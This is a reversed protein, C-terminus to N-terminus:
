AKRWSLRWCSRSSPTRSPWTCNNQAGYKTCRSVTELASWELTINWACLLSSPQTAPMDCEALILVANFSVFTAFLSIHFCFISMSQTQPFCSHYIANRAYRMKCRIFVQVNFMSYLHQMNVFWVAKSIHVNFWNHIPLASYYFNFTPIYFHAIIWLLLTAFLLKFKPPSIVDYRSFDWSFRATSDVSLKLLCSTKRTLTHWLYKKGSNWVCLIYETVLYRYTFGPRLTTVCLSLRSLIDGGTAPHDWM